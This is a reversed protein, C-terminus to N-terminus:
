AASNSTRKAAFAARAEAAEDSRYCVGQMEAELALQTRLQELIPDNLLRKIAARTATSGDALRCALEMADAVLSGDDAVRNVLGWDLAQEATVPDGLLSMELARGFGARAAVLVSSGGDPVLGVKVFALVLKASRAAVVLDCALAYSAGIGAAVGNLAAVVPQPMERLMMVVPNSAELLATRVDAEGSPFTPLGADVIDVGSCFGRGVGTLVVAGVGRDTAIGALVGHLDRTMQVNLANLREPRNLEVVAVAGERHTRIM